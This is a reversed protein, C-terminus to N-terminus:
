RNVYFHYKKNEPNKQNYIMGHSSFEFDKFNINNRQLKVWNFKKYFNILEKKCMLFSFYKKQKITTNNFNM